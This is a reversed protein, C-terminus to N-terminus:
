KSCASLFGVSGLKSGLLSDTKSKRRRRGKSRRKERRWGKGGEPGLTHARSIHAKQGEFKLSPTHSLPEIVKPSAWMRQLM